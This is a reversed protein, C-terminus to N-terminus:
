HRIHLHGLRLGECELRLDVLQEAQDDVCEVAVLLNEETLENAVSRISQILDPELAQSVLALEISLRLEENAKNRVLSVLSEGNNIATDAHGFCTGSQKRTKNKRIDNHKQQETKTRTYVTIPIIIETVFM